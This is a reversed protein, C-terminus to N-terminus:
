STKPGHNVESIVSVSREYECSTVPITYLICLLCHINPCMSQKAFPLPTEPLGDGYNHWKCEWLHLEVDLTSPSPLYEHYFETLENLSSPSKVNDKSLGVVVKLQIDSFWQDIHSVLESLFPISFRIGLIWEFVWCHWFIGLIKDQVNTSAVVIIDM